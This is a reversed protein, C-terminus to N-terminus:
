SPKKQAAAPHTAYYYREMEEFTRFGTTVQPNKKLDPAKHQRAAPLPSSAKEVSCDGETLRFTDPEPKSTALHSTNQHETMATSVGETEGGVSAPSSKELGERGSAAPIPEVSCSTTSALTTGSAGEGLAAMELSGANDNGKIEIPKGRVAVFEKGFKESRKEFFGEFEGASNPDVQMWQSVTEAGKGFAKCPTGGVTFTVMPNGTRTAVRRLNEIRGKLVNTTKKM